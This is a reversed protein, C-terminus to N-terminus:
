ETAESDPESGESEVDTLASPEFLERKLSHKKLLNSLQPRHIGLEKAAHTINGGTKRLTMEIKHRELIRKADRLTIESNLIGRLEAVVRQDFEQPLLRHRAEFYIEAGQQYHGEAPLV